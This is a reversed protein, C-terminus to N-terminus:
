STAEGFFDRRTCAIEEIAAVDEPSLGEYVQAALALMDESTTVKSREVVLRVHQGDPIELEQLPKFVGHEYIAEIVESM